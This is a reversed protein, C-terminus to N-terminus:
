HLRYYTIYLNLGKEEEEITELTECVRRYYGQTNDDLRGVRGDDNNSFTIEKSTDETM